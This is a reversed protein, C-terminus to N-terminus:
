NRRFTFGLDNNKYKRVQVEEVVKINQFGITSGSIYLEKDNHAYKDDMITTTGYKDDHPEQTHRWSGEWDVDQSDMELLLYSADGGFLANGFRNFDPYREEDYTNVGNKELEAEIQNLLKNRPHIYMKTYIMDRIFKSNKYTEASWLYVCSRQDIYNQFEDWHSDLAIYSPLLGNRMISPLNAKSTLHLLKM